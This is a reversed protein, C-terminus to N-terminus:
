VDFACEAQWHMRPHCRSLHSLYFPERWLPVRNEEAMELMLKGYM